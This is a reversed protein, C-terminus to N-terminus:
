EEYISKTPFRSQLFDRIVDNMIDYNFHTLDKCKEELINKDKVEFDIKIAIGEPLQQGEKRLTNFYLTNGCMGKEDGSDYQFLIQTYNNKNILCPIHTEYCDYLLQRSQLVEITKQLRRQWRNLQQDQKFTSLQNLYFPKQFHNYDVEKLFVQDDSMQLFETTIDTQFCALIIKQILNQDKNHKYPDIASIHIINKVWLPKSGVIYVKGLDKFNSLSRLSYRLEEDQRQSGIGLKYVVDTQM